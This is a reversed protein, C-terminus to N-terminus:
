KKKYHSLFYNFSNKLAKGTFEVYDKVESWTEESANKAKDFNKQAEGVLKRLEKAQEDYVKKAEGSFDKMKVELDDLQLNFGDLQKKAENILSQKDMIM